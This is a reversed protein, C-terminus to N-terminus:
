PKLKQHQYELMFDYQCDRFKDVSLVEKLEPIKQELHLCSSMIEPQSCLLMKASCDQIIYEWDSLKQTEYLPVFVIGNRYCAYAITAWNLSNNSILALTDGRKLGSQFLQQSTDTIQYDWEQHTTWEFQQTVPDKQGFLPRTRFCQLSEEQLQLLNQFHTAYSRHFLWPKYKSILKLPLKM